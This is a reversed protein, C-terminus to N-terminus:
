AKDSSRVVCSQGKGSSHSHSLMILIFTLDKMTRYDYM